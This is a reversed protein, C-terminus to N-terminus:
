GYIIEKYFDYINNSITLDDLGLEEIRKRGEVGPIDGTISKFCLDALEDADMNNAVACGKVGKINNRVDGVDTSVIPLNCAMAEKVVGPSGESISTLLLLDCTQYLKVVDIVSMGHMEVFSCDINYKHKLINFTKEFLPFNKVKRERSSPFIIIKRDNPIKNVLPKFLKTNVSCPIRRYNSNYGRIAQEMKDNLIIVGNSKKIIQKSLRVQNKLGQEILIDGGHLTVISKINLFPVLLFLGSLGYHIHVLDYKGKIIKKIIKPISFVYEFKSDRGHIFFYDVKVDKHYYEIANGQDVVFNSANNNETQKIYVNTVILVKMM